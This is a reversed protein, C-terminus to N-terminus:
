SPGFRETRIRDPPHGLGVLAEAAAEVFGNPGCTYVRPREAVGFAVRELMAADVRGTEGAWGDPWRRTLTLTVEVGDSKQAGTLESRYFVEDLERSSYLFRAPADSGTLARHRLMARLPV